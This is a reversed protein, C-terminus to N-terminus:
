QGKGLGAVLNIMMAVIVSGFLYSLLAHRLVTARITKTRLATDSVQFTMGITFALYAFDAYRPPHPENFDVDDDPGDYYIRAYRTTFMTHLTAWALVVSGVNLAAQLDQEGGGSHGGVLLLGVAGLSAVAAVVVAVDTIARGPDERVAHRATTPADMSGINIWMWTVFVAAAVMWGVLTGYRWDGWLSTVIGALVGSLASVAVRVTAPEDRDEGLEPRPLDGFEDDAGVGSRYGHV